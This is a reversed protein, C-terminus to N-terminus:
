GLGTIAHLPKRAAAPDDACFLKEHGGDFRRRIREDAFDAARDFLPRVEEELPLLCNEFGHGGSKRELLHEVVRANPGPPQGGEGGRPRPQNRPGDEFTQGIRLRRLM